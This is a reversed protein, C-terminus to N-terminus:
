GIINVVRQKSVYECSLIDGSDAFVNNNGELSKVVTPTLQITLPTELKYVLQGDSLSNNFDDINSYRDDRIFLRSTSDARLSFSYNGKNFAAATNAANGRNAYRDMIYSDIESVPDRLINTLSDTYYLTDYSGSKVWDLNNLSIMVGIVTLIGNIVDLECWYYTGGLDITITHSVTPLATDDAVTINVSDWGHIPRVNTPSPYGSGEQWANVEFSLAQMAYAEADNIEAVAAPLGQIVKTLRLGSWDIAPTYIAGDVGDISYDAVKVGEHMTPIISVDTAEPVRIEGSVGDIEYDAVKVGSQLTPTISVETPEPAYLSGHEDGIQYNAIKTGYSLVPDIDIGTTDVVSGGLLGSFSISGEM